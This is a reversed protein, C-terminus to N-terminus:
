KFERNVCRLGDQNNEAMKDELHVDHKRIINRLCYDLCRFCNRASNCVVTQFGETAITHGGVTAM